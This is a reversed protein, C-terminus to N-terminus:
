RSGTGAVTSSDAPHVYKCYTYHKSDDRYPIRAPGLGCACCRGGAIGAVTHPRRHPHRAFFCEACLWHAVDEM